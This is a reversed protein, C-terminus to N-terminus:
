EDEPTSDSDTPGSDKGWAAVASRWVQQAFERIQEDTMSRPPTSPRVFIRAPKKPQTSETM